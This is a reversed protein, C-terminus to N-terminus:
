SRPRTFWSLAGLMVLGVGWVMLGGACNQLFNSSVTVPLPLSQRWEEVVVHNAYWVGVVPGLVTWAALALLSTKGLTTQESKKGQVYGGDQVITTM